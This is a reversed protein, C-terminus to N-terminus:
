TQGCLGLPYDSDSHKRRADLSEVYMATFESQLKRFDAVNANVNEKVAEGYKARLNKMLESVM